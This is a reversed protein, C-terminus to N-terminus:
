TQSVAFRGCVNGSCRGHWPGTDRSRCVAGGEADNEVLLLTVVHCTAGGDVRAASRVVGVRRSSSSPSSSHFRWEISWQPLRRSTAITSLLPTLWRNPRAPPSECHRVRDCFWECAVREENDDNKRQIAAAAVGGSWRGYLVM